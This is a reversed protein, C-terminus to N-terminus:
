RQNYLSYPDKIKPCESIPSEPDILDPVDLRPLFASGAVIWSNYQIALKSFTNYYLSLAQAARIQMCARVIHDKLTIRKRMLSKILYWTFKLPNM